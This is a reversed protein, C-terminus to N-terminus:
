GEITVYGLRDERRKKLVSYETKVFLKVDLMNAVDMDWYLMFGDILAFKWEEGSCAVM